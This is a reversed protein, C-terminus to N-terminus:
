FHTFLFKMHLSPDWSFGEATSFCYTNMKALRGLPLDFFHVRVAKQVMLLLSSVWFQYNKHQKNKGGMIHYFLNHASIFLSTM